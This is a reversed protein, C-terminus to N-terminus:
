GPKQNPLIHCASITGNGLPVGGRGHNNTSCDKTGKHRIYTPRSLNTVGNYGLDEKLKAINDRMVRRGARIIRPAEKIDTLSVDSVDPHLLLDAFFDEETDSTEYILIDLTRGVIQPIGKVGSQYNEMGLNIGVVYQAGMAKTVMAPVIDKVGGDIIQMGRFQKPIFTVPISISSRVAESVLADKIVKESEAGVLVQNSFVIKNGSDIDCAIIAIPLKLDPLSKGNTWQYILHEIKDGVILGDLSYCYRPFLWSLLYKFLGAFNYDIYDRPSLNLVIKEMEYPSIGSAYLSAIISGASTGTIYDPFIENDMLVQLVGIHAIGKLGGGGLALGFRLM